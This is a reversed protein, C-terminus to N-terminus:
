LLSDSLTCYFYIRYIVNVTHLLTLVAVLPLYPQNYLICTASLALLCISRVAVDLQLQRRYIEKESRFEAARETVVEPIPVCRRNATTVSTNGSLSARIISEILARDDNESTDGTLQLEPSTRTEISFFDDNCRPHYQDEPFLENYMPLSM